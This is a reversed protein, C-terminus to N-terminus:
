TWLKLFPQIVRARRRAPGSERGRTSPGGNEKANTCANKSCLRARRRLTATRQQTDTKFSRTTIDSVRCDGSEVGSNRAFHCEVITSAM